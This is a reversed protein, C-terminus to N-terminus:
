RKGGTEGVAHVADNLIKPVKIVLFNDEIKVDYIGNKIRKSIFLSGIQFSNGQRRETIKFGTISNSSPKFGIKNRKYDLYIEVYKKTKFYKLLYNSFTFGCNNSSIQMNKLRVHKKNIIEFAM